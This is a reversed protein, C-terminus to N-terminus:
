LARLMEIYKRGIIVYDYNEKIMAQGKERLTELEEETLDRIVCLTEAMSEPSKPDLSFHGSEKVVNNQSCFFITPVGSLLYDNLKNTSLGFKYVSYDGAAAVAAKSKGLVKPILHRDVSPFFRIRDIGLDCSLEMLKDKEGGDGVFALWIDDDRVMSFANLILDLNESKVISGIYVCCWHDDLFLGLGEPLQLDNYLDKEAEAVNIGNPMWYIKERGVNAVDAVHKWAYPMTSVIADARKYARKEISSLLKVFPHGPNVGQVDVLSLPWIDRFEAIFKAKSKKAIRYGIEWVFPPASSAIVYDPIGTEKMIRKQYHSIKRCFDIMNAVRKAGNNGYAPVSHLYVYQVGPARRVIRIGQNYLYEKRGHHYSSTIVAVLYGQEAFVKALELHRAELHSAYQNIIWIVKSM